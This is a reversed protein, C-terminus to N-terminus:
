EGMTKTLVWPDSGPDGGQAVTILREFYHDWGMMHADRIQSNGLNYHRLHVITDLGDPIFTVEVISAGPLLPIIGKEAGWTFVIRTYPVVELFEGRMVDRGNTDVRFIGGPRADLTNNIGKWRMMKEPETFFSFVTEPRAAIRIKREVVDNEIPPTTM